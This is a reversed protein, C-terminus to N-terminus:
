PTIHIETGTAGEALAGRLEELDEHLEAGDLPTAMEKAEEPLDIMM